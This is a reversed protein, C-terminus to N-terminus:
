DTKRTNEVRYAETCNELQELVYPIDIICFDYTNIEGVGRKVTRVKCWVDTDYRLEVNRYIKHSMEEDRAQRMLMQAEKFTDVYGIVTKDVFVKGPEKVIAYRMGCNMADKSTVGNVHMWRLAHSAMGFPLGTYEFQNKFEQQTM